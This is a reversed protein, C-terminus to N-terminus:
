KIYLNKNYNYMENLIITQFENPKNELQKRSLNPSLFSNNNKFRHMLEHALTSASLMEVSLYKGEYPGITGKIGGWEYLERKYGGRHLFITGFRAIEDERNVKTGDTRFIGHTTGGTEPDYLDEDTVEITYKLSSDNMVADLDQKGTPSKLIIENAIEQFEKPTNSSWTITNDEGITYTMKNGDKDVIDDGQMVFGDWYDNGTSWSAIAGSKALDRGYSDFGWPAMGDPDVFVVPNNFAYNYPSFRRMQEALPDINM